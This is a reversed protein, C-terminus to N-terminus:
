GENERFLEEEELRVTGIVIKRGNRWEVPKCIALLLNFPPLRRLIKEEIEYVVDNLKKREM